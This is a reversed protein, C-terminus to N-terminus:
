PERHIVVATGCPWVAAEPARIRRKTTNIDVVAPCGIIPATHVSCRGQVRSEGGVAGAKVEGGGGGCHSWGKERRRRWRGLGTKAGGEGAGHVPVHAHCDSREKKPLMGAALSKKMCRPIRWRGGSGIWDGDRGGDDNGGLTMAGFDDGSQSVLATRGGRFRTSGGVWHDYPRRERSLLAQRRAM